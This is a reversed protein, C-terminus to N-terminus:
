TGNAINYIAGFAPPFYNQLVEDAYVGYEWKRSRLPWEIQYYDQRARIQVVNNVGSLKYPLNDCYFMITGPAINPHVNVRVEDGTITNLISTVRDGAAIGDRVGENRNIRLLPAGGNKIVLISINKAEQANVYIDTPSLRYLNYFASFADDLQTIGGGGNSTLITGTGATGTALAKVYAGSGSKYIQSLLGDFAYANTSQDSSPLSSALQETGAPLATLVASNITTLAVLREGGVAGLFWAYGAAGAKATVTCAVSGTSGSTVTFTASASKQAAGGGYTTTTADANTRSVSGPVTATLASFSAGTSGNNSGAVSWYADPGLAVCIVSYTTGTAISGGSTSPTLSPTATTGLAVSTNGGVIMMEEGIMLSRLLGQVARAKVDDFGNAAYDAEFTAYDDLGIGRYAALYDATTTTVVGGRNGEALGVSMAATNIGTIARWNAQIGGKGSVRPIRNRLPTLVPYITRAPAELDYATLGSVASGAQSFSKAIDENANTRATKVLDLTEQATTAM